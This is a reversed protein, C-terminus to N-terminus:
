RRFGEFTRDRPLPARNSMAPAVPPLPARPIRRVQRRVVPIRPGVRKARPRLEHISASIVILGLFLNVCTVILTATWSAGQSLAGTLCCVSLVGYGLAAAYAAVTAGVVSTATVSSFISTAGVVFLSSLLLAYGIAIHEIEVGGFLQTLALIPLATLLVGVLYALRSFLKGAIIEWDTLETVFLFELTRNEKERAITDAVVGPAVLFMGVMQVILCAIMFWNAFNEQDRPSMLPAAAFPHLADFGHVYSSYGVLLTILLVIATPCRLLNHQGRRTSNVLDYHFLPGLLPWWGRVYTRRALAPPPAHEQGNNM